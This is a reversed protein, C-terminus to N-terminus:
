AHTYEKGQNEYTRLLKAYFAISGNDKDLCSRLFERLDNFIMNTRLLPLSINLKNPDYSSDDMIIYMIVRKRHYDISIDAANYHKKLIAEHLYQYKKLITNKPCSKIILNEIENLVKKKLDSNEMIM